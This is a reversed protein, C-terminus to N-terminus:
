LPGEGARQALEELADVMRERGVKRHEYGARPTQLLMMLWDETAELLDLMLKRDGPSM